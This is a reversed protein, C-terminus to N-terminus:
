GIESENMKKCINEDYKNKQAEREDGKKLREDEKNRNQGREDDKM